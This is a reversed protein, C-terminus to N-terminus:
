RLLGSIEVVSGEFNMAPLNPMTDYARMLEFEMAPFTEEAAGYLFSDTHLFYAPQM